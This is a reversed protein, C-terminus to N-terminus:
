PSLSMGAAAPVQTPPATPPPRTPFPIVQGGGQTPPQQVGTNSSKKGLIAGWLVATAVGGILDIVLGITGTVTALKERRSMMGEVAKEVWGGYQRLEEAEIDVWQAAKYAAAESDFPKQSRTWQYQVVGPESTKWELRWIYQGRAFRILLEGHFNTGGKFYAGDLITRNLATIYRRAEERGEQLARENWPKIEFLVLLSVDTIDPSIM